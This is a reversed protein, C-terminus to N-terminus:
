HRYDQSRDYNITYVLVFISRNELIFTLFTSSKQRDRDFTNLFQVTEKKRQSPLAVIIGGIPLQRLTLTELTPSHHQMLLM